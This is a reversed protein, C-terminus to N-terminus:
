IASLNNQKEEAQEYTDLFFEEGTEFDTVLFTVEQSFCSAISIGNELAIYVYGSSTNFGTELIDYREDLNRYTDIVIFMSEIDQYGMKNLDFKIINEM